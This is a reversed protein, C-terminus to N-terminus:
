TRPVTSLARYAAAEFLCESDIDTQALLDAITRAVKLLRNIARASMGDRVMVLRELTREASADLRCTTRMAAVSMEANTRCAFPALRAAQIDRARVVRERISASDEAPTHSRLEDLAVNKVFVHLDIRDLLPGSLKNRYRQLSGPACTCVRQNSGYWGCPCPNAAAVLLFASPLTVTGHVRGVTIRRDELPQRLSEIVGRQFEPVEDLFLVGNHALSIEGPRPVSGGGLLAASSISHHPARFPREGILAGGALGVASYIQTTELMEEYTMPPLISPVRRALMTKGIGPPGALLINHGGAVAIELAARAALQGRVDSMDALGARPSERLTSTDPSPLPTLPAVETLAAIVESLHSAAYVEIDEVVAAERASDAPLLVGRLGLERALLAASLAGRVPRLSGDLGLEGMLLLGALAALAVAQDAVLIGVAIPLDFAAGEKRRDAPALNVTIKKAPMAHGVHELASRIRVAGEKVSAAPLGVVHYGPLGSSVDVEVTVAFADIGLLACAPVSGLMGIPIAFQTGPMVM